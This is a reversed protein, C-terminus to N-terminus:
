AGSRAVFRARAEDYFGELREVCVRNDYEREM